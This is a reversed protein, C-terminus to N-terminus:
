ASKIICFKYRSTCSYIIMCPNLTKIIFIYCYNNIIKMM